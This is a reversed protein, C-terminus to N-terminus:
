ELNSLLNSYYQLHSYYQKVERFNYKIRFKTCRFIIVFSDPIKRHKPNPAPNSWSKTLGTSGPGSQSDKELPCFHDVFLFFNWTKLHQNNEKTHQLSRRYNSLGDHLGLFLIIFKNWRVKNRKGNTWTEFSKRSLILTASGLNKDRLGSGLKKWGPNSNKWGPDRIQMLSNWYKLGLFITELSESIHDQNNM